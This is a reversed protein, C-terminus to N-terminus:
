NVKIFDGHMWATGGNTPHQIEIWSGDTTGTLVLEDGSSVSGMRGYNTSPGERLNVSSGTVIGTDIVIQPLAPEPVPAEITAAVTVINTAEIRAVDQQVQEVPQAEVANQALALAQLQESEVISQHFVSSEGEGLLGAAVVLTVIVCGFLGSFFQNM